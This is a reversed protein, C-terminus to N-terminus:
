KLWDPFRHQPKDLISDTVPDRVTHRGHKDFCEVENHLNDNYRIEGTKNNRYAKHGNKDKKYFEWGEKKLKKFHNIVDEATRQIGSKKPDRDDGEPPTPLRSGGGSGSKSSSNVVPKSKSSTRSFVFDSRKQELISFLLAM